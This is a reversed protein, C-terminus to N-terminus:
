VQEEDAFSDNVVIGDERLERVYKLNRIEERTENTANELPVSVLSSLDSRVIQVNTFKKGLEDEVESLNLGRREWPISAGAIYDGTFNVIHAETSIRRTSPALAPATQTIRGNDLMARLALTVNEGAEIAPDLEMTFRTALTVNGRFGQSEIYVTDPGLLTARASATIGGFGSFEDALETINADPALNLALEGQSIENSFLVAGKRELERAKARAADSISGRLILVDSYKELTANIKFFVASANGSPQEAPAPPQYAQQPTGKYFAFVEFLFALTILAVVLKILNNKWDRFELM